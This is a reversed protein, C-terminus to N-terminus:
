TTQEDNLLEAIRENSTVLKERVMCMVNRYLLSSFKLDSNM